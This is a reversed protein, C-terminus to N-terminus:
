RPPAVAACIANARALYEVTGNRGRALLDHATRKLRRREGETMANILKTVPSYSPTQADWFDNFDSYALSVEITTAEVSPLGAAVFLSRLADVSCHVTGPIAPPPAGFAKMARRLPGSPSLEAAFDWVYGAVIGGPRTVRAMEAVARAPVAVFNFTLASVAIDFCGDAFPLQMADAQRFRARAAVAGRAAQAIQAESADVGVVAAPDYMDILAESLVGTGCGVDLWKARRPAGIWRLFRPAVARSWRGMAREYAAADTFDFGAEAM